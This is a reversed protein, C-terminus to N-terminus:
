FLLQLQGLSHQTKKIRSLGTSSNKKILEDCLAIDTLIKLNRERSRNGPIIMLIDLYRRKIYAFISDGKFPFCALDDTIRKTINAMVLQSQYGKGNREIYLRQRVLGKLWKKAEEPTM